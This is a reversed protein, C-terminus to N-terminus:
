TDLCRGPAVHCWLTKTVGYQKPMEGLLCGPTYGQVGLVVPHWLVEFVMTGIISIHMIQHLCNKELVHYLLLFQIYEYLHAWPCVNM